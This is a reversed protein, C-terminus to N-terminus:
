KFFSSSFFILNLFSFCGNLFLSVYRLIVDKVKIDNVCLGNVSNNDLLKWSNNERIISAHQRSIM